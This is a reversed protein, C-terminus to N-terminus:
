WKITTGCYPDGSAFINVDILDVGKGELFKILGALNVGGWKIDICKGELIICDDEDHKLIEESVEQRWRIQYREDV